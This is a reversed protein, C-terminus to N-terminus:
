KTEKKRRKVMTEVGGQKEQQTNHLAKNVVNLLTNPKLTQITHVLFNQPLPHMM